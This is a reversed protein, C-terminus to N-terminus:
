YGLSTEAAKLADTLRSMDNASGGRDPHAKHALERYRSKLGGVTPKDHPSYGLVSRWDSSSPPLAKFGVFAAKRSAAGWREMGRMAELTLSISRLNDRVLPWKDCSMCTPQSDLIFYIAVGGDQPRRSDHYPRWAGEKEYGRMNSSIVIHSADIKRLEDMVREVAEALSVKYPASARREERPTRPRDAPWSLPYAVESKM